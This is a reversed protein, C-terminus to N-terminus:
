KRQQFDMQFRVSALMGIPLSYENTKIKRRISAAGPLENELISGVLFNPLYPEFTCCKLHAKYKEPSMACSNCTALTESLEFRLLEEPLLNQYVQPLSQLMIM